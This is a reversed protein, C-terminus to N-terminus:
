LQHVAETHQRRYERSDLFAIAIFGIGILGTVPEPVDYRITILLILALVGVAYHAGHELYIYRALIRRRVFYVTMSRVFLAGIGLGLAILFIQNTIAFAGIVGDFSFSADLVELYIFSLLGARAIAQATQGKLARSGAVRSIQFLGTLSTLVLYTVMGLIGPWLVVAPNDASLGLAATALVVLTVIVTLNELRGLKALAWELRRLWKIERDEFVFDLFLMLLFTGGFAAIAPHAQTLIAAYQDPANMALRLVEVPGLHGALSVILLPFVLRMGFVAIAIGLTLFLSQWRRSMRGLVKANVVANDFSLSIELVALIAVLLATEPGLWWWTALLAAASLALPWRFARLLSM